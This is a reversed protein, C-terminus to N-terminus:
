KSPRAGKIWSYYNIGYTDDKMALELTIDYWEFIVDVPQNTELDLRIDEFGFFYDGFQGVGGSLDAVWYDFILEHKECFVDVYHQIATELEDYKIQTIRYKDPIQTM